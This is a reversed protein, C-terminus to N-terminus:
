EYVAELQQDVIEGTFRDIAVHLWYRKEGEVVFQQLTTATPPYRGSQAIVDIMLNWTRTQAITSLARAVVERRAKVTQDRIGGSPLPLIALPLGVQTILASRDRLPVVSTRAIMNISMTEASKASAGTRPVSDTVDLEDFIAGALISQLVPPQQTNLNVHGAVLDPEDNISFVDLLGADGSKDSFLDLSKWPLDRFAYGLEAVTRFPRNLIIPHYERSSAAATAYYPTSNRAPDTSDPYAADAPRIINDNDAYSTRTATSPATNLALTAPYFPSGAFRLPAREVAGGPDAIAGGYGNSQAAGGPWLPETIREPSTATIQFVGFRTARPDVEVLSPPPTQTLQAATFPRPSGSARAVRVEIAANSIWSAQQNIGALYNYPVFTGGGADVEMTVNFAHPIAAPTPSPTGAPSPGPTPSTSAGLQLVLRPSASPSPSPTASPHDPLRFGIFAAGAPPSPPSPVAAFSGPATGSATSNSTLLPAPSPAFTATSSVAVTHAAPFFTDTNSNWVEGNGGIFLGIGGEVRLRVDPRSPLNQHPNWLQFLLYTEWTTPDAANTGAVPYLQSIYPLSETGFAIWMGAGPNFQLRTPISDSDSQDIIAAGISLLHHTTNSMHFDPFVQAGGTIGGGTNQGLSGSLIAAQMLEFFDAERGDTAVEDLQKIRTPAGHSYTWLGGPSVYTLGFCALINAATGQAITAASVKNALLQTVIPDNSPLSASPGRPTLWALRNLPFRTRVLPEGAVATSGDFRAFGTTVRTAAFNPNTASPTPPSFSPANTDISFTTLYELANQSMGSMRRYRLLDQRTPFVQDTRSSSAVPSPFPQPNATRFGDNRVLAFDHYATAGAANFIYDGFLTGSPQSANRTRISAYNRWGIINDVQQQQSPSTGFIVGLDAFALNTKAGSQLPTTPSPYGAVNIDLLGGEDYIAYAYRGIVYNSNTSISNSLATAGTGFSSQAAPGGRTVLVWDPATFSTVPTSDVTTGTNARPILYHTNWRASTVARANLSAATSSIDSARSSVGPSPIPNAGSPGDGHVSIRILNPIPTGGAPPTGSKQPLINAPATPEFHPPVATTPASGNAIEEKLDATIVELAAIGISDARATHASSNAAQREAMTRSFFAVVAVTLLVVFALVIVLAVGANRRFRRGDRRDAKM